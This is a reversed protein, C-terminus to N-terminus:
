SQTQFGSVTSDIHYHESAEHHKQSLFFDPAPSPITDKAKIKQRYLMCHNKSPFISFKMTFNKMNKKNKSLVYITPVHPDIASTARVLVWLTHKPDFILFIPLVGGRNKQIFTPYSPPIYKVSM